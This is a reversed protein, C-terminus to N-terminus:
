YSPIIAGKIVSDQHELLSHVNLLKRVLSRMYPSENSVLIVAESAQQCEPIHSLSIETLGAEETNVVEPLWVVADIKGTKLLNLSDTYNIEIIEVDHDPFAKETLIKQDPSSPDVGVKKIKNEEGKRCILKHEMSYTQAGLDFAIKVGAGVSNAALKSMIAVDYTGKKLCESRADAGRMHAFYLPLHGMQAKLGSALGEYHKTYPLPMACVLHSFGAKKVLSDYDLMDIFTGNRGQKRLKIAGDSELTTLAKQIFGVSVEFEESLSDITRLREEVETTILYRAINIIASGEKSIYLNSM